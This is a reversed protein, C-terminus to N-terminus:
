RKRHPILYSGVEFPHLSPVKGGWPTEVAPLGEVGKGELLTALTFTVVDGKALTPADGTQSFKLIWREKGSEIVVQVRGLSGLVRPHQVTLVTWEGAKVIAEANKRSEQPSRSGPM